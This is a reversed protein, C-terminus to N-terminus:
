TILPQVHLVILIEQLQANQAHPNVSYAVLEKCIIDMLVHNALLHTQVSIAHLHVNLVVQSM